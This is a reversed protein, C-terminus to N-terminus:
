VGAEPKDRHWESRNIKDQSRRETAGALCGGAGGGGFGGEVGAVTRGRGGKQQKLM